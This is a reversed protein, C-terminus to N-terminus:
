HPAALTKKSGTRAVLPLGFSTRVSSAKEGVCLGSSHVVARRAVFKKSLKLPKALLVEQESTKDGTRFSAKRRRKVGGAKKMSLPTAAV